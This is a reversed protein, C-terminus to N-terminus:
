RRDDGGRAPPGYAREVEVDPGDVGEGAEPPRGVAAREDVHVGAAPDRVDPPQREVAPLGYLHGVEVGALDEVEGEAGVAAPERERAAGERAVHDQYSVQTSEAGCGPLHM